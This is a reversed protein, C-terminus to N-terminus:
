NIFFVVVDTILVIKRHGFTNHQNPRTHARANEKMEKILIKRRQINFLQHKKFSDNKLLRDDFKWDLVSSSM